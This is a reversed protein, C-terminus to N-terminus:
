FALSLDKSGASEPDWVKLTFEARGSGVRMFLVNPDTVTEWVRRVVGVGNIYEEDRIEVISGVIDSPHQRNTIASSTLQYISRPAGPVDIAYANAVHIDGSVNTVRVDPRELMFSRIAGLVAAFTEINGPSTWQDRVDDRIGQLISDNVLNPARSAMSTVWDRLGVFPVSTNTVLDTVGHVNRLSRLFAVFDEFQARSILRDRPAEYNRSTRTDFIFSATSGLVYAQHAERGRPRVRPGAFLIYEEAVEQAIRFMALNGPEFDKGESGWGDHIEHDDWIFLHPFEAMVSRMPALSWFYRYMRRYEQRLWARSEASVFWSGKGYVQDAFDTAENDAYCTDGAGWIVHPKFKRVESAYWELVKVADRGLAARGNPGPAYPQHCSWAVSRVESGANLGHVQFEGRAIADAGFAARALDELPSGQESMPVVAWRWRRFPRARFGSLDVVAHAPPGNWSPFELEVHAFLEPDPLGEPWTVLRFRGAGVPRVTFGVRDPARFGIVVLDALDNPYQITLM